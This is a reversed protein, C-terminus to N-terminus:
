LVSLLADLDNIIKNEPELPKSWKDPCALFYRELASVFREQYEAPPIVTVEKGGAGLGQKAKYELTKAFTYSGITDVLGCAIEKNKTDVGLLLSYDMINSRALFDADSRIAERLVLKSHPRVLTLTQQQGEIWEGDFLTKSSGTGPKVKRGQIGKLDFTKDITQNYFLNEMVLLDAKSQVNGTELNRIEITYFGVLKALVTAKCATSDLYRFYSPALDILVQLDAVNWANVLTKIIFRDDFTKWFNSKSKGGEASWNQSKSLSKLFVDDVGCRKRLIDFQKAYYVTCSFKLRKGVTWDYKIHPREDIPAIEASLLGHHRNSSMSAPSLPRSIADPASRLMARMATTLGSTYTSFSSPPVATSSTLAAEKMPVPPPPLYSGKTAVASALSLRGTDSGEMVSFDDRGVTSNSEVSIISSAKGRKIHADEFSNSMWPEISRSSMSSNPRSTTRSSTVADLEQLIRDTASTDGTPLGSVVEGGAAEKSIQVEPKAWASPPASTISPRSDSGYSGQLASSLLRSGERGLTAIRSGSLIGGISTPGVEPIGPAKQRLVERISLLGTADKPHEKRSIVASYAEPEHWIVDEQDPDPQSLASSRFLRYGTTSFFSSSTSPSGPRSGPAPSPLSSGSTLTIPRSGVGSMAGLEQRYADTSLTFAIISGWDDERVIINGGPVVHCSKDWWEPERVCLSLKNQDKRSKVMERDRKATENQGGKDKGAKVNVVKLGLGTHKKQWAGLRREVGKAASLFARRVENLSGTPTKSLQTYLSQETRHFTQRLNSLLLTPDKISEETSSSSSPVSTISSSSLSAESAISDKSPMSPLAPRTQKPTGKPTVVDETEVSKNEASGSFYAPKGTPTIPSGPLGDRKPTPMATPVQVEDFDNYADDSSPLRPLSKRSSNYSDQSETALRSELMDVHDAVGEWWVKIERRLKKKEVEDEHEIEDNVGGTTSATGEQTHHPGLVSIGRIVQVRPVRLEFVEDIKDVFFSVTHTRNSFHRVINFRMDPLKEMGENVTKDDVKRGANGATSQEELRPFGRSVIRSPTPTIDESEAVNQEKSSSRPSNRLSSSKKVMGVSPWGLGRVYPRGVSTPTTLVSAPGVSDLPSSSIASGPPSFASPSPVNRNLADSTSPRVHDCLPTDIKSLSPSYILLELFKGFPLLFTGDSMPLRGQAWDDSECVGCSTWIEIESDNEGSSKKDKRSEGVVNTDSKAKVISPFQPSTPSATSNRSGSNSDVSPPALGIISNSKGGGEKRRRKIPDLESVVVTVRVGGHMFRIEHKGRKVKCSGTKPNQGLGGTRTTGAKKTAAASETAHAHHDDKEGEEKMKGDSSRQQQQQEAGKERTGEGGSVNREGLDEDNKRAVKGCMNLGVSCPEEAGNLWGQIMEGLCVGNSAGDGGDMRTKRFLFTEWRPAQYNMCPMFKQRAKRKRRRVKKMSQPLSSISSASSLAESASSTQQQERVAKTREDVTGDERSHQGESSTESPDEDGEGESLDDSEGEDTSASGMSSAVSGEEVPVHISVLTSIAQHRLFGKIGVMGVGLGLGQLHNQHGGNGGVEEREEGGASASTSWGILEKLAVREDGRVRGVSLMERERKALRVLLEPLEINEGVGPSTSFMDKTESLRNVLNTFPFHKTPTTSKSTTISSPSPSQSATSTPSSALTSGGFSFRRIRGGLNSPTATTAGGSPSSSSVSSTDMSSRAHALESYSNNSSGRLDLSEGRVSNVPLESGQSGSTRPSSRKSFFSLIGNPILSPKSSHGKSQLHKRESLDSSYWHKADGAESLQSRYRDTTAGHSSVRNRPTTTNRNQRSASILSPSPFTLALRSDSLLHQELLLSIHQYIALKLLKGLATHLAPSGPVGSFQFTGGVLRPLTPSSSLASSWEDYGYLLINGQDLDPFVFVGPTFSCRIQSPIIDFGADEEPLAVRSGVPAFSLLLHKSTPLPTPPLQHAALERLQRIKMNSDNGGSDSILYELSDRARRIGVLWGGQGISRGLGDLADEISWVLEEKNRDIWENVGVDVLVEPDQSVEDLVFRIFRARHQRAQVCLNALKNTNPSERRVKHPKNNSVSPPDLFQSNFPSPIVPLPKDEM